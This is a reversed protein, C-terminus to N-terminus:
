RDSHIVIEKVKLVRGNAHNKLWDVMQTMGSHRQVVYSFCMKLKLTGDLTSFHLFNVHVKTKDMVVLGQCTELFTKKSM